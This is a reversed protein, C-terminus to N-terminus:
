TNWKCFDNMDIEYDDCRLYKNESVKRIKTLGFLEDNNWLKEIYDIYEKDKFKDAYKYLYEDCFKDFNVPEKKDAFYEMMNYITPLAKKFFKNNSMDSYKIETEEPFMENVYGIKYKLCADKVPKMQDLIFKGYPSHIYNEKEVDLKYISKLKQPLNEDINKLSNFLLKNDHSHIGLINSYVCKAGANAVSKILEDIEEATNLFPIVPSFHIHVPIGKETMKKIINIRKNTTPVNLEIKKSKEDTTTITTQVLVLNKKALETLIDIDREILTSKTLITLPIEYKLFLKLIKRTCQTEQEEKIYPDTNSGFFVIRKDLEKLKKEIEKIIGEDIDIKKYFDNTYANLCYACCYSCGTYTNMFYKWHHSRLTLIDRHFLNIVNKM